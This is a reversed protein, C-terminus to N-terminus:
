LGLCNGPRYFISTLWAGDNIPGHGHLNLRRFGHDLLLQYGEAYRKREANDWIMVGQPSFAELSARACNVRDRGDNVIIDFVAGRDAVTRSYAGGYELPEHVYTVNSPLQPRMEAVWDEHHEVSTVHAARRAWWLTSGGSGFEFVRLRTLDKEALFAITPYTYWPIPNRARDVPRRLRVSELWGSRELYKHARLYRPLLKRAARLYADRDESEPWTSNELEDVFRGMLARANPKPAPM